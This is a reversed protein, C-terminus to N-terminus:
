ISSTELIVRSKNYFKRLIFYTTLYLTVYVILYITPFATLEGVRNLNYVYFIFPLSLLPILFKSISQVWKMRSENMRKGYYFLLVSMGPVYFLLSALMNASAIIDESLLPGTLGFLGGIICLMTFDFSYDRGGEFNNKQSELYEENILSIQKQDFNELAEKVAKEEEIGAEKKNEIETYIHDYFEQILDERQNVPLERLDNRLSNLFDNIKANEKM